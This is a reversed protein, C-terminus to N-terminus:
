KTIEFPNVLKGNAFPVFKGDKVQLLGITPDVIRPANGNLVTAPKDFSIPPLLGDTNYGKLSEFANLISKRTVTATKRAVDAFMTASLWGNIAYDDIVDASNGAAQWQAVFQQYV